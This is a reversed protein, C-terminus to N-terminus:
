IWRTEEDGRGGQTTKGKKLSHNNYAVRDKISNGGPTKAKWPTIM